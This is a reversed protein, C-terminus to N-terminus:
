TLMKILMTLVYLLPQHVIYIILSNRGIAPFVPMTATYFWDPMKNERIIGGVWTGLLFIFIWPLLPFYDFSIFGEHPWGLIWLRNSSVAINETAWATIATLIVCLVPFWIGNCKEWLRHTLGYFLMCVALLHLIGFLIPMNILYTVASLLIAVVALKLGRKLNSKSFRSSIGSLLIFLGAFIFHLVDFVPNSFLWKPAGIFYVLDYLFHHIVMLVVAIGRLGDILQIRNKTM